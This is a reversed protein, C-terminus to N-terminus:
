QIILREVKRGSKTEIKFLYMGKSISSLDIEKDFQANVHGLSETYLIRGQLDEVVLTVQDNIGSGNMSLVFRGNSPNPYLNVNAGAFVEDIGVISAYVSDTLISVGCENTATLSVLYWGASAYVHIPDVATSTSFDGFDWLYTNIGGGNTSTNTFIVTLFSTISTFLASPGYLAFVEISDVGSGCNNSISAFYIGPGVNISLTTDGTSWLVTDGMNGAYLTITSDYCITTDPGLFASTPPFFEDAGIDPNANRTDGDHDDIIPTLALGAGDLGNNCVHLDEPGSYYPDINLSNADLGSANQWDLLTPQASTFYGVKGNPAYFNNHDSATVVGINNYYVAYGPGTNVLNNNYVQIWGGNVVYLARSALANSEVNINNNFIDQYKCTSMYIGYTISTTTYGITGFNNAILGRGNITADCNSFYYCYGRHNMNRVENHSVVMANDCSRFYYSYMTGTNTSNTEFLNNQFVPADQYNLKSGYYYNNLFHNGHFVTGQELANPGDGYWYVGYSGNEIVNYWFENNHNLSSGSSSHIVTRSTSTSTTNNNRLISNRISNSTAGNHFQVVRAFTTGTNEITIGRFHFYDASDFDITWNAASLTAAFTLISSTSDGSVSQFTITNTLSANIVETLVLQEVYTSDNVMITISSCVGKTNLDNIVDTYSYYDAGIGGLTYVGQMGLNTIIMSTDNGAGTINETINNPLDTWAKLTDGANIPASGIFVTATSFSPLSGNWNYTTQVVNNITWDVNVSILTDIGFNRITVWVDNGLNCAPTSPSDIATVGADTLLLDEFKFDDLAIDGRMGATLYRWRIIVTDGIYTSLYVTDLLWIDGQSGSIQPKVDLAWSNGFDNSVDFHLVGMQAGYMHRAFAVFPGNAGVLDIQPSRLNATKPYSPCSTEVYLYKGSATGPNYDVSPGTNTSPTGGNDTVWDLDDTTENFWPVPLICSAGCSTGCNSWAELDEFYPLSMVQANLVMASTVAVILTLITKM